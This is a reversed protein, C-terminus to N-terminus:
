VDTKTTTTTTDETAGENAIQTSETVVSSESSDAVEANSADAHAEIEKTTEGETENIKIDHQENNQKKGQQENDIDNTPTAQHYDGAPNSPPVDGLFNQLADPSEPIQVDALSVQQQQQQQPEVPLPGYTKFDALQQQFAQDLANRLREQQVDAEKELKKKERTDEAEKLKKERAEEAEKQKKERLLEEDKKKRAKLEEEEKKRRVREEEAIRAKEKNAQEREHRVKQITLEEELSVLERQKLQKYRTTDGTQKEKWKENENAVYSEVAAGLLVEVEDIKVLITDIQARVNSINASVEPIRSLENDLKKWAENQAMCLKVVTPLKRDVAEGKQALLVNNNHLELFSTQYQRLLAASPLLNIGEKYLEPPPAYSPTSTLVNQIPSTVTDIDIKKLSEPIGPMQNISDKISDLPKTADPLKITSAIKDTTQEVKKLFAKFM